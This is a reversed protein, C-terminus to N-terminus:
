MKSMNAICIIHCLYNDYVNSFIWSSEFDVELSDNKFILMKESFMM